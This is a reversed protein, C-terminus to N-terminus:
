EFVKDFFDELSLQYAEIEARDFLDLCFVSCNAGRPFSYGLLEVCHPFTGTTYPVRSKNDRM